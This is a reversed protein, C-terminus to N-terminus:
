RPSKFIVWCSATSAPAQVKIMPAAAIAPEPMMAIGTLGLALAMATRSLLSTASHSTKM